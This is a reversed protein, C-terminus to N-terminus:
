ESGAIQGGSKLAEERQKVRKGLDDLVDGFYERALEFMRGEEHRIHEKVADELAKLRPKFESADPGLKVLGGILIMADGHQEIATAVATAAQPGIRQVEPYFIGEEARIHVELERRIKEFLEGLQASNRAQRAQEFLNSVATHDAHLVDLINM